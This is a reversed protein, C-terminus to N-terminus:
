SPCPQQGRQGVTSSYASNMAEVEAGGEGAPSKKEHFEAMGQSQVFSGLVTFVVAISLWM